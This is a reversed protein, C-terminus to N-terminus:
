LFCSCLLSAGASGFIFLYFLNLGFFGGGFFGFLSFSLSSYPPSVPVTKGESVCWRRGCALFLNVLSMESTGPGLSAFLRSFPFISFPSSIFAGLPFSQLCISPSLLKIGVLLIGSPNQQFIWRSLSCYVTGGFVAEGFEKPSLWSFWSMFNWFLICIVGGKFTSHRRSPYRKSPKREFTSTRRLRAGHTAQYETRGSSLLCKM